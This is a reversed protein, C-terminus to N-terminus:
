GHRAGALVDLPDMGREPPVVVDVERGDAALRDRLREAALLGADDHDAHIAVHRVTAPLQV